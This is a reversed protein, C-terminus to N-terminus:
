KRVRERLAQLREAGTVHGVPISLSAGIEAVRVQLLAAEAGGATGPPSATAEAGDAATTRLAPEEILAKEILHAVAKRKGCTGKIGEAKGVLLLYIDLKEDNAALSKGYAIRSAKDKM